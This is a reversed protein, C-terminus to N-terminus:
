SDAAAMAKEVAAGGAEKMDKMLLAMMLGCGAVMM